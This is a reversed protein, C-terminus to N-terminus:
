LKILHDHIDNLVRTSIKRKPSGKFLTVDMTVPTYVYALGTTFCALSVVVATISFSIVMAVM